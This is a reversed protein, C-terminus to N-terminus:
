GRLADALQARASIGLKRYIRSLHVEVTKPTIFLQQAVVRNTAGAAALEAVRLESPTLAEPGSLASRRPRAGAARLAARVREALPRAGCRDATDLASRLLSRAEAGLGAAQLATGLDAQAAARDLRATSGSLVAVSERLLELAGNREPALVALARLARGVPAPAGWGRALELEEAALERAQETRGDAHLALAAPVRWQVVAPNLVGLERAARGVELADRAVLAPADGRALRLRARPGGLLHAPGEGRLVRGAEDLEGRLLLTDGLAARVVPGLVTTRLGAREYIRAADLGERADTEAEALQGAQLRGRARVTSVSALIRLSGRRRADAMLADLRPMAGPDEALLLVALALALATVTHESTELLGGSLARRARDAADPRGTMADQYAIACDLMRAGPGEREALRRLAPMREPLEGRGARSAFATFLMTAALRCRLDQAPVGGDERELAAVAEELDAMAQGTPQVYTAAEGLLAAIRAREVPGSATRLATRLHGAAGAIDETIAAEALQLLLPVREAAPPPEELARHLFVAAEAPAGVATSRDAARRLLEVTHPDGTPAAHLLHAAIRAPDGTRAEVLRAAGRHLRAREAAPVATYVAARILPHVYRVRRPGRGDGGDDGARVEGDRVTGPHGIEELCRLATDPDVGALAAVDALPADDGLVALAAAFRQARPGLRNRRREVLRAVAHPGLDVVYGAHAADTPLDQERVARALERLLLPNGATADHCARVFAPDVEGRVLTRALFRGAAVRGLPRPRLVTFAPDTAVQNLLPGSDGTEDSRAAAVLAVPLEALRPLLFALWRLSPPDCWHLDDVALLLPADEAANVALWLLSNLAAFDGIVAADPGPELVAAATLAPGALLAARREPSAGALLPEFLQRVVGFAFATELETARATLVRAGAARGRERAHALLASKGIGAVGELLVAAGEGRAAAALARDLVAAEHGRELLAPDDAPTAPPGPEASM